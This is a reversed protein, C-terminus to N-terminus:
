LRGYSYSYYLTIILIFLRPYPEEVMTAKLKQIKNNYKIIFRELDELFLGLRRVRKSVVEEGLIDIIEEIVKEAINIGACDFDTLIAVYGDDKVIAYESLHGTTNVIAIGYIDALHKIQDAVGRKEVFVVVTGKDALNPIQRIDVDYWTGAFYLSARPSAFIGLQERKPSGPLEACLDSVMSTIQKRTGIKILSIRYKAELRLAEEDRTIYFV